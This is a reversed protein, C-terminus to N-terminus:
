WMRPTPFHACVAGERIVAGLFDTTFKPKGVKMSRKREGCRWDKSGCSQRSCYVVLRIGDMMKRRSEGALRTRDDWGPNRWRKQQNALFKLGIILNDCMVEPSAHARFLHAKRTRASKYSWSGTRPVWWLSCVVLQM